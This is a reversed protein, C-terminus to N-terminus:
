NGFHFRVGLNVNWHLPRETYASRVQSGNDFHYEVGPTFYLGISPSFRYEAGATAGVSWLLGGTDPKPNKVKEMVQGDVRTNTWSSSLLGKEVMGGAGAYLWLGKWVNFGAELRLPVGLYGLDQGVVTRIPSATEEFESNLYTWNLGSVLNLHPTLEWAATVGVRLPASHHAEFSSARNSALTRMLGSVDNKVNSGTARTGLYEGTRNMGYGQLQESSAQGGNGYASISFRKRNNAPILASAPVQGTLVDQDDHRTSDDHGVQDPMEGLEKKEAVSTAQEVASERDLRSHRQKDLQSHLDNVADPVTEESVPASVVPEADALLTQRSAVAFPVSKSGTASSTSAGPETAPAIESASSTSADFDDTTEVPEVVTDAPEAVSQALTAQKQLDPTELTKEPHLFVVLAVAAAAALGSAIWVPLMKRRPKGAIGQEIGEWLGEPEPSAYDSFRKRLSNKWENDM